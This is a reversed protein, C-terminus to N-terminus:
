KWEFLDEKAFRVKPRQLDETRYGIPLVICSKIHAPLELIRDYEEPDFGGICCSDISLEACAALAFGLTLYVQDSAWSDTCKSKYNQVLNLFGSLKEPDIGKALAQKEYQDILSNTDLNKAFVLVHEM